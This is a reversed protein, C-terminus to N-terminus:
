LSNTRRPATGVVNQTSASSAGMSTSGTEHSAAVLPLLLSPMSSSVDMTPRPCPNSVTFGKRRNLFIMWIQHGGAPMM